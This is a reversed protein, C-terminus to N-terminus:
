DDPGAHQHAAPAQARSPSHSPPFTRMCTYLLTIDCLTHTLLHFSAPVKSSMGFCAHSQQELCPVGPTFCAPADFCGTTGPCLARACTAHTALAKVGESVAVPQLSVLHQMELCSIVGYSMVTDVAPHCVLLALCAERSGVGLTSRSCATVNCPTAGTTDQAPYSGCCWLALM